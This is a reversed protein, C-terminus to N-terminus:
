VFRVEKEACEGEDESSPAKIGDANDDLLLDKRSNTIHGNSTQKSLTKIWYKPTESDIYCPGEDESSM